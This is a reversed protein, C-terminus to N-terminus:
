NRASPIGRPAKVVLVAAPASRMVKEAVSGFAFSTWGSAGHSAVVILDAKTQEATRLIESAIDNAIEVKTQVTLGAQTYHAAVERIQRLAEELLSREYDGEKFISVSSPLKPLAPVVNLLLLTAGYRSALNAATEVADRGSESFDIPALVVRPNLM